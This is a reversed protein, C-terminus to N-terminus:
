LTIGEKLNFFEKIWWIISEIDGSYKKDGLEKNNNKELEQIWKIAETRLEKSNSMYYSNIPNKSIKSLITDDDWEVEIDKLTKLKM